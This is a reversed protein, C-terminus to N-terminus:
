DGHRRVELGREGPHFHCFSVFFRCLSFNQILHFHFIDSAGKAACGKDAGILLLCFPWWFLLMSYFFIQM